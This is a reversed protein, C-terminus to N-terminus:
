VCSINIIKWQNNQLQLDVVGRQDAEVGSSEIVNVRTQNDSLPLPQGISVRQPVSPSCIVPDARRTIQNSLNASLQVPDVYLSEYHRCGSPLCSMYWNYFEAVTQEPTLPTTDSRTLPTPTATPLTSDVPIPTPSPLAVAINQGPPNIFSGSILGVIYAGIGVLLVFGIIVIAIFTNRGM